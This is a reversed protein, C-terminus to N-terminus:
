LVFEGRKRMMGGTRVPRYPVHRFCYDCYNNDGNLKKHGQSDCKAYRQQLITGANVILLMDQASIKATIM